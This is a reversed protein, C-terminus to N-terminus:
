TYTLITAAVILMRAEDRHLLPLTQFSDFNGTDAPSDSCAMELHAYLPSALFNAVALFYYFLSEM